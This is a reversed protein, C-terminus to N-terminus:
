LCILDPHVFNDNMVEQRFSILLKTNLIPIKYSLNWLRTLIQM